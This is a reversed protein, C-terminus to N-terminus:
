RSEEIVGCKRLENVIEATAALQSQHFLNSTISTSRRPYKASSILEDSLQRLLFSLRASELEGKSHANDLSSIIQSLVLTRAAHAFAQDCNDLEFWANKNKIDDAFERVKDRSYALSTELMTRINSKM